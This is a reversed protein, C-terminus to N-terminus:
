QFDKRMMGWGNSAYDRGGSSALGAHSTDADTPSWSIKLKPKMAQKREATYESVYSLVIRLHPDAVRPWLVGGPRSMSIDGASTNVFYQAARVETTGSLLTVDVRKLYGSKALVDVDHAYEAAEDETIALTSQAIMLIDSGFRRVVKEIDVTTYSYTASETATYSM